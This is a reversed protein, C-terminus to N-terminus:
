YFTNAWFHGVSYWADTNRILYVLLISMLVGTVIAYPKWNQKNRIDNILLFSSLGVSLYLDYWVTAGFYEFFIRGVIPIIMLVATGIMFRMHYYTQKRYFIALAYLVIFGILQMIIPAQNSLEVKEAVDLIHKHFTFRLVLLMSLIMLPAIFYSLKGLFRHTKYKEKQILIPQVVLLIIWSAMLAGHVHHLWTFKEFAPFYQIYTPHFGIQLLIFLLVMGVIISKTNLSDTNGILPKKM